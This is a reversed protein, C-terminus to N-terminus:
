EGQSALAEEKLVMGAKNACHIYVLLFLPIGTVDIM